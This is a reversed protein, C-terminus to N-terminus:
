YYDMPNKGINNDMDNEDLEYHRIKIEIGNEDSKKEKEFEIFYKGFICRIENKIEEIKNKMKELYLFNSNDHVHSSGCIECINKHCKECFYKNINIKCIICINFKGDDFKGLSSMYTEILEGSVFYNKDKIILIPIEGKDPYPIRNEKLAEKYDKVTVLKDTTITEDTVIKITSLSPNEESIIDMNNELPQSSNQNLNSFYYFDEM